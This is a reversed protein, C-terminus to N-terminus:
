ARSAPGPCTWLQLPTGNARYGDLVDLCLGSRANALNGDPRVTWKQSDSGTCLIAMVRTGDQGFDQAPALCLTSNATRLEDAATRTWQQTARGDCTWIQLSGDPGATLCNGSAADVLVQAAPVVPPTSRITGVPASAVSGPTTGAPAPVAPSPTTGAPAPAVSGPTSGVPQPSPAGSPSPSAFPSLSFDNQGVPGGPIAVATGDGSGAPATLGSIQTYLVVGVTLALAFILVTRRTLQRATAGSSQPHRRRGPGPDGARREASPDLEGIVPLVITEAETGAEPADLELLYPPIRLDLLPDPPFPADSQSNCIHGTGPGGFGCRQCRPRSHMPVVRKATIGSAPAASTAPLAGAEGPALAIM